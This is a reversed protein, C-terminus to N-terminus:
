VLTITWLGNYSNSKPTILNIWEESTSGDAAGSSTEFANNVATLSLTLTRGTETNSLCSVINEISVRSLLPSYQFDINRGITGEFTIDELKTCNYFTGNTATYTATENVKIKRIRKLKTCGRFLSFYQSRNSLTLDIDADINTILTNSDFLNNGYAIRIPYKPKFIEDSWGGYCFAQTYNTRNGNQQFIDWFRDYEAQKGADIGNQHYEVEILAGKTNVFINTTPYINKVGEVTGDANPTYSTPEIYPEYPTASEGVELQFDFMEFQKQTTAISHSGVGNYIKLMDGNEINFTITNVTTNVVPNVDKKYKNNKDVVCGYMYIDTFTVKPIARITYTGVPLPIEYGNRKGEVGSSSIYTVEKILSTDNNFLNKGQAKLTADPNSVKVGLTHEIPSVDDLSIFEGSVTNKPCQSLGGSNYVKEQNEAITVLKEAISM